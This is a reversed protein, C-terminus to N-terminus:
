EDNENKEGKMYPTITKGQHLIWLLFFKATWGYAPAPTFLVESLCVELAVQIYCYYMKKDLYIKEIKEITLIPL